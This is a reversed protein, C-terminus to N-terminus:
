APSRPAVQGVDTEHSVEAVARCLSIFYDQTHINKMRNIDKHVWQVNGAVYGRSNDIRDLSANKREELHLGSLKCRFDQQILLDWVENPTVEVPLNRLNANHVIRTWTSSHVGCNRYLARCASCKKSKGSELAKLGVM